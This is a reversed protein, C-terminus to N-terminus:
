GTNILTILELSLLFSPYSLITQFPTFMKNLATNWGKVEWIFMECSLIQINVVVHLKLLEIHLIYEWSTTPNCIEVLQVGGWGVRGEISGIDLSFMIKAELECM